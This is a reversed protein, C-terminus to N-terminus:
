DKLPLTHIQTGEYPRRSLALLAQAVADTHIPRYKAFPGALLPALLPSLKQAFHEAPRSETREGLLLSPQVIHLAPYGLAAVASEMRGKTRSYFSPSALSAGVASVVMFQRAGQQLAAKALAVVYDHDVQELGARGSKGQTTGLCCYVDDAQLKAGLADLDTFDTTLFELRPDTLAPPRRGLLKIRDYDPAALLLPLLKQGVAGTAGAVLATKTM